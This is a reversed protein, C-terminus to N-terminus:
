VKVRPLVFSFLLSEECSTKTALGEGSRWGPVFIILSFPLILYIIVASFPLSQYHYLYKLTEWLRQLECHPHRVRQECQQSCLRHHETSSYKDAQVAHGTGTSCGFRLRQLGPHGRVMHSWVELRRSRWLEQVLRRRPLLLQTQRIQGHCVQYM